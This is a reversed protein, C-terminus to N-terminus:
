HDILGDRIAGLRQARRQVQHASEEATVYLTPGDWAALLQLLLTSKGIGPEGGLLTVSGPVLGGGLVRDLEVISTAVPDGEQARVDGMPTPGARHSPLLPVVGLPPADMEEALTNWAGCGSCQGTWKPHPTGCGSCVHVVKVRGGAKGAPSGNVSTNMRNATSTAM